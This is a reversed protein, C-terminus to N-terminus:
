LCSWHAHLEDEKREKQKNCWKEPAIAEFHEFCLYVYPLHLQTYAAELGLQEPETRAAASSGGDDDGCACVCV